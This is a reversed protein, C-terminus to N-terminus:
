LTTDFKTSDSIMEISLEDITEKGPASPKPRPDRQEGEGGARLIGLLAAAVQQADKPRGAPAKAVLSAVLADLEPPCDQSHEALRPPEGSLHAEFVETHTSGDFMPAGVVMQYLIAGLSYLDVSGTLPDECRIQEPAMYRCTGIAAAELTLRHRNLDRALGFDGIKVRGDNALFVNAPKLDRHIIGHSHAHALGESVQGAVKVATRWPFKGYHKLASKLSGCEVLEMVIFLEDDDIGCEVFRVINPHDLKQLVVAERVFRKQISPKEAEEPHLVKMAYKDGSEVSRVLHVAGAAGQGLTHVVEYGGITHAAM